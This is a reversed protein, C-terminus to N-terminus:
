GVVKLDKVAIVYFAKVLLLEILTALSL